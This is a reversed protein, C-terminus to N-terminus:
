RCNMPMGSVILDVEGALSISLPLPGVSSLLLNLENSNVWYLHAALIGPRGHMPPVFNFTRTCYPPAAGPHVMVMLSPAVDPTTLELSKKSVIWTQMVVKERAEVPAEGPVEKPAEGPDREPGRGPRERFRERPREQSRERPRERPWMLKYNDLRYLNLAWINSWIIYHLTVYHLTVLVNEHRPWWSLTM